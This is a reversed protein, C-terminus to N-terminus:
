SITIVSLLKSYYCVNIPIIPKTILTAVRGKGHNAKGGWCTNHANFGLALDSKGKSNPEM